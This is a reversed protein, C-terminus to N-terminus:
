RSGGETARCFLNVEGAGAIDFASGNIRLLRPPLEVRRWEQTIAETKTGRVVVRCSPDCARREVKLYPNERNLERGVDLSYFVEYLLFFQHGITSGMINM